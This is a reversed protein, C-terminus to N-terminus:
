YSQFAAHNSEIPLSGHQQKNRATAAPLEQM